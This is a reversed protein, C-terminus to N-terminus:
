VWNCFLRNAKDPNQQAIKVADLPSYVVQINAGQARNSFLDAQSGPVRLMDGYSTFIVDPLASIAIAKDILELSTVCVPCGPGHVLEIEPPLLQHLGYHMIAHTQGGCIEMIVWPHTIIKRINQLLTKVLAPDRFRSTLNEVIIRLEGMERLISLTEQAEEESLISLAYGAHVITYDGIQIEPLSEICVQRTVGGFDVMAMRLGPQDIFQIIKGPVGLCM